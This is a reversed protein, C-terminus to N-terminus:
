NILPEVHIKVVPILFLIEIEALGIYGLIFTEKIAPQGDFIVFILRTPKSSDLFLSKIRLIIRNWRLTPYYYINHNNNKGVLKM